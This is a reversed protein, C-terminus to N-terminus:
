PREVMGGGHQRRYASPTCGVVRRFARAFEHQRAYGVRRAIYAISASSTSLCGQAFEMRLRLLMQSPSEGYLRRFRHRLADYNDVMDRLSGTASGQRCLDIARRLRHVEADIAMMNPRAQGLQAPADARGVFVLLLRLWASAAQEHGERRADVEVQIRTFLDLYTAMQADDLHWVRRAREGLAPFDSEFREDPEFNVVLMRTPAGDGIVGHQEGHRHLFVTGPKAQVHAGAHVVVTGLDRILLLEHGGHVHVLNRRSPDARNDWAEMVFPLPYATPTPVGHMTGILGAL